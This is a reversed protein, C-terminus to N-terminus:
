IRVAPIAVTGAGIAGAGGGVYLSQSNVNLIEGTDAVLGGRHVHLNGGAVLTPLM